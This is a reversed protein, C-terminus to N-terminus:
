MNAGRVHRGHATKAPASGASPCNGPAHEGRGAPAQAGRGAGPGNVPCPRADEKKKKCFGFYVVLAAGTLSLVAPLIMWYRFAEIWIPKEGEGGAGRLGTRYATVVLRHTNIGYPTCTFLTLIDKGPVPNFLDLDTPKIVTIKVVRYALKRNLVHVFVSDGKKLKPLDDFLSATVLGSHATLVSNTNKGGVPLTTGFLHGVGASIANEETGHRVPLDINAKPVVLRAIVDDGLTNEYDKYEKAGKSTMRHLYPDLIPIGRINANYERAQAFLRDAKEPTSNLKELRKEQARSEKLLEINGLYIGVVPYMLLGIGLVTMLIILLKRLM